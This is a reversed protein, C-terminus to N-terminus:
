VLLQQAREIRLRKVYDKFTIGESRMFQKSFYHEELGAIKAVKSRSLNEGVHDRIYDLARRFGREHRASTPKGLALAVDAIARRYAERVENVTDAESATLEASRGLETLSKADMVGSTELADTVHDFGAALEVRVPDVRYGYRLSVAEFYSQFRSLLETPAERVASGLQRRLPGLARLASPKGPEAHFLRLGRALAQEAAALAARYTQPAPESGDGPSAGAHLSLGFPKALATLKDLLENLSRGSAAHRPERSGGVKSSARQRPIEEVLLAVGYDAIRACVLGGRRIAFRTCARQFADRALLDDLAETSESRAKLLAVLVHAPPRSVGLRALEQTRDADLWGRATHDAIMSRAALWMRETARVRTVRARLERVKEATANSANGSTILEALCSLLRGFDKVEAENLTLMLLRVLVFRSFAPDGFRGSQGTLQRWAALLDGSTPRSTGFPGVVLTLPAGDPSTGAPVFFDCLGLQRGMLLRQERHARRLHTENYRWRETGAAHQVEFELESPGGHLPYWEEFVTDTVGSHLAAGVDLEEFVSTIIAALAAAAAPTRALSKVPARPSRRSKPPGQASRAPKM